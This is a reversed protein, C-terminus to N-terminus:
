LGDEKICGGDALIEDSDQAGCRDRWLREHAPGEPDDEVGDYKGFQLYAKEWKDKLVLFTRGDRNPPKKPPLNSISTAVAQSATPAVSSPGQSSAEGEEAEKGIEQGESRYGKLSKQGHAATVETANVVENLKQQDETSLLARSEAKDNCRTYFDAKYSEVGHVETSLSTAAQLQDPSAEAHGGMASAGSGM